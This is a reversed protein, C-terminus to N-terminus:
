YGFSEISSRNDRNERDRIHDDNNKVKFREYLYVQIYIYIHIFLNENEIVTVLSAFLTHTYANKQRKQM